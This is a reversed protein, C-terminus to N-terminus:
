YKSIHNLNHHCGQLLPNLLFVMAAIFGIGASLGDVNDLFNFANILLVIWFFSIGMTIPSWMSTLTVTLGSSILTAAALAQALLKLIPSMGKLDDYLGVIVLILSGSFIAIIQGYPIHTFVTCGWWKIIPIGSHRILVAGFITVWLAIFIAVGGLLAIPKKCHREGDPRSVLGMKIAIKRFVFSLLASLCAAFIFLASYAAIM